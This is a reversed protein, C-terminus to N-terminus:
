WPRQKGYYGYGGGYYGYGPGYGYGYPAYGYGYGPGYGYSYSSSAIAGLAMGAIVGAAFGGGWRRGRWRVESVLDTAADKTAVTNSLVPAAAAPQTLLLPAMVGVFLACTGFGPKSM